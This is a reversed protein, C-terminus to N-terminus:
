IIGMMRLQEMANEEIIRDSIFRLLGRSIYDNGRWIVYKWYYAENKINIWNGNIELYHGDRLRGTRVPSEDKVYDLLTESSQKVTEKEVLIYNSPNTKTYFSEQLEITINFGM